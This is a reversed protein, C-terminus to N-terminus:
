HALISFNPCFSRERDEISILLDINHVNDIAQPARLASFSEADSDDNKMIIDYIFSIEGRLWFM